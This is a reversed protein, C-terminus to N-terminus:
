LLEGQPQEFGVPRAGPACRDMGVEPGHLAEEVVLRRREGFRDGRGPVDAVGHGLPVTVHEEESVPVQVVGGGTAEL